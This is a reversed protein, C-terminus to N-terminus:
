TLPSPDSAAEYSRAREEFVRRFYAALDPESALLAEFSEKPVVMLEADDLVRAHKSHQTNRLLSLEGFYGGTDVCAVDTERGDQTDFIQVSGTLVVYLADGESGKEFVMRGSPYHLIVSGGYIRLLTEDDLEAFDPVARLAKVLSHTIRERM